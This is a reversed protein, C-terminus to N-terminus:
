TSPRMTIPPTRPSEAAGPKMCVVMMSIPWGGQAVRDRGILERLLEQLFHLPAMEQFRGLDPGPDIVTQCVIPQLEGRAEDHALAANALGLVGQAPVDELAEFLGADFESRRGELDDANGRKPGLVRRPDLRGTCEIM